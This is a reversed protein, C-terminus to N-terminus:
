ISIEEQFSTNGLADDLANAMRRIEFHVIDAYTYSTGLGKRMEESDTDSGIQAWHM